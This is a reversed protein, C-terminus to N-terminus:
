NNFYAKVRKDTENEQIEKLFNQTETRDAFLNMSQYAAIRNYYNKEHMAMEKLINLGKSLQDDPVYFLYMGYMRIVYYLDSSNLNQLKECFWDFHGSQKKDIFYNALSSVININDYKQFQQALEDSEEGDVEFYNYLATGVVMYSSDQLATKYLEKYKSSSDKSSLVGLADARVLSKPDNKAISAIVEEFQNFVGTSDKEIAELVKERIVWFKDLLAKELLEQTLSDTMANAFYDVAEIRARANSAYHQYQYLYQIATKKHNIEGPLIYESDFLILDPSKVDDFEYEQYPQDVDVQYQYKIDNKWVDVTLPLKFVPYLELNQKQWIKLIFKGSDEEEVVKLNPHGASLFWQNFFWNLDEGSIKEFALRLEHIEAKGFAHKTLYYNLAKFFAKDGLYNRLFHLVLAGKEYSHRDFLDDINKYYYRIISEKKNKSEDLYNELDEKLLYDSEDKGYKYESWLYEAYSAFSENLAINSWSECTVLDGFWQHFLEHSIIDDWNYDILERRDVNLDEMFVSASTNEMAGTVFDRVVVQSYKPWPYPYDLIKSFYDIMEPTHGFIDRAYKAFKPELYYSVEKGHWEDKTVSFDGAVLMFLYPAHPLDMKWYDTRTSDPNIKSYILKGNSLTTFEKNVTIYIEETTKQNPSDITPFWRSSNESEGQTWLEQPQNEYMNLSNIFYFGRADFKYTTDSDMSITTYNVVVNINQGASYPRGLDIKIKSGDYTFPVEIASDGQELAVSQLNFGKADLVLQSQPYFYPTLILSAKGSLKKHKWDPIINLKTHILKFHRTREGRYIKVPIESQTDLQLSDVTATSQVSNPVQQVTQKNVKCSVFAVTIFVFTLLNKKATM